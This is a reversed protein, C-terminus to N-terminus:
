FKDIIVTDATTKKSLEAADTWDGLIFRCETHATCDAGAVCLGVGRNAPSKENLESDKYLTPSHLTIRHCYHHITVSLHHSILLQKRSM